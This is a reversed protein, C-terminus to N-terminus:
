PGNKHQQGDTSCQSVCDETYAGDKSATKEVISTMAADGTSQQCSSNQGHRKDAGSSYKLLYMNWTRYPKSSSTLTTTSEMHQDFRNAQTPRKTPESSSDIIQYM